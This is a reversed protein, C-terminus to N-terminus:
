TQSAKLWKRKGKWLAKSQCGDFFNFGIKLVAAVWEFRAYGKQLKSHIREAIYYFNSVKHRLAKVKKANFNEM